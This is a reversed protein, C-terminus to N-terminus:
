GGSLYQLHMRFQTVAQQAHKSTYVPVATIAAATCWPGAKKFTLSNSLLASHVRQALEVLLKQAARKCSTVM